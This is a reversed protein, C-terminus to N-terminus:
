QPGKGRVTLAEREWGPRRNWREGWRGVRYLVVQQALWAKGTARVGPLLIWLMVLLFLVYLGRMSMELVAESKAAPNM